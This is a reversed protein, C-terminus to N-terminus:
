RLIDLQRAPTPLGLNNRCKAEVIKLLRDSLTKKHRGNSVSKEQLRFYSHREPMPRMTSEGLM